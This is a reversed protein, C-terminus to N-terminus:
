IRDCLAAILDSTVPLTEVSEVRPDVLLGVRRGLGHVQEVLERGPTAVWAPEERGTVACHKALREPTTFVCLWEGASETTSVLLGGGPGRPVVLTAALLLEVAHDTAPEHLGRIAAALAPDPVVTPEERTAALWLAHFRRRLASVDPPDILGGALFQVVTDVAVWTAPEGLLVGRVREHSLTAPLDDRKRIGSSTERLSPKGAQGYLDHVALTLERAPGPPLAREDPMEVRKM